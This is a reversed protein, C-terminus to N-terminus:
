ESKLYIGQPDLEQHLIRLEESTLPQTTELNKAVKLDWGTNQRAQEADIGPHLATLVLEGNADPQL